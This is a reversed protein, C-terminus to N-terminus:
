MGGHHRVERRGGGEAREAAVGALIRAAAEVQEPTLPGCRDALEQAAETRTLGPTTANM